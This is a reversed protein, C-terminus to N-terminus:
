RRPIQNAKPTTTDVYSDNEIVAYDCINGDNVKITCTFVGNQLAKMDEVMDVYAPSNKNNYALEVYWYQIETIPKNM